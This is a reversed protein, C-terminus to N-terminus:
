SNLAAVAWAPPGPYRAARSGADQGWFAFAGLKSLARMAGNLLNLRSAGFRQLMQEMDDSQAQSWPKSVGGALRRFPAWHLLDLLQRLQQQAPTGLALLSQDLRQLGEQLTAERSQTAEPLAPGACAAVLLRLLPLDETQLWQFGAAPTGIPHSCGSLQTGLGLLSLSALGGASLKLFDRRDLGHHVQNM